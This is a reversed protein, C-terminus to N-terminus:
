GGDAAGALQRAFALPFEASITTGEGPSSAVQLRGGALAVREEMGAIGASLGQHIRWRVEAPDFGEGDDTVRVQLAGPALRLEVAVQSAKAHRAANTLAEQVVRYCATELGTELRAPLEDAQMVGEWNCVRAQQDLHWRLAAVLGLDDLQPPRLALTIDRVRSLAHGAMGALESM